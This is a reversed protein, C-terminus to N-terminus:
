SKSRGIRMGDTYLTAVADLAKSLDAHERLGSEECREAYREEETWPAVSGDELVKSWQASDDHRLQAVGAMVEADWIRLGKANKDLRHEIGKATIALEDGVLCVIADLDTRHRGPRRLDLAALLLTRVSGAIRGFDLEEEPHLGRRLLEARVNKIVDVFGRDDEDTPEVSWMTFPSFEDRDARTAIRFLIHRAADLVFDPYFFANTEVTTDLKMVLLRDYEGSVIPVAIGWKSIVHEHSAAVMLSRLGDLPYNNAEDFLSDILTRGSELDKVLEQVRLPARRQARALAQEELSPRSRVGKRVAQRRISNAAPGTAAVLNQDQRDTQYQATVVGLLDTPLRPQTSGRPQVIYCRDVGLRGIFLGLEFLVNDRVTAREEQRYLVLDDPTFVFIGFDYNDLSDVLASLVIDSPAFVGQPWVTAELDFDLNEQLAYAVDLGEVSSGIFARPKM